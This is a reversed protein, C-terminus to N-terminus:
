KGVIIEAPNVSHLLYGSFICHIESPHGYLSINDMSIFRLADGGILNLVVANGVTSHLGYAESYLGGIIRENHLLKLYIPKEPYKGRFHYNFMYVGTVPPIFLGSTMNFANGYNIFVKDFTINQGSKITVNKALGVSFAVVPYIDPSQADYDTIIQVGSFSTFIQNDNGFLYSDTDVHAKITVNDKSRLHLIVTNGTSSWEYNTKSRASCIYEENVFMDHWLEEHQMSLGYFHFIYIGALPTTFISSKVDFANTVDLLKVDYKIPTGGNVKQTRDSVVSFAPISTQNLTLSESGVQSCTFTDYQEYGFVSVNQNPRTKVKVTDDKALHLVVVNGGSSHSDKMHAYISAVTVDNHMIDLFIKGNRFATSYVQCTFIGDVISTFVGNSVSNTKMHSTITVPYSLTTAQSYNHPKDMTITFAIPDFKAYGFDVSIVIMSFLVALMYRAMVTAM